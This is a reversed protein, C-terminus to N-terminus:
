KKHGKTNFFQRRTKEKYWSFWTGPSNQPSRSIYEWIEGSAVARLVYSWKWEFLIALKDPVYLASKPMRRRSAFGSSHGLILRVAKKRASPNHRLLYAALTASVQPHDAGAGSDMFDCGWYGWDHVLIAVWEALGRPWRGHWKRWGLTVVVPHLLFQHVGFLLSKTGTKM